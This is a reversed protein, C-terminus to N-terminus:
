QADSFFPELPCRGSETVTDEWEGMGKGMVEQGEVFFFPPPFSFLFSFIM